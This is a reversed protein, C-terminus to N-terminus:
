AFKRKEGGKERERERERERRKEGKRERERGEEREEPSLKLEDSTFHCGDLGVRMAVAAVLPATNTQSM